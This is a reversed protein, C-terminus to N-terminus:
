ARELRAVSMMGLYRDRVEIPAYRTLFSFSPRYLGPMRGYALAREVMSVLEVQKWGTPAFFAASEDPAFL